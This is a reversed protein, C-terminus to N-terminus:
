LNQRRLPLAPFRPREHLGNGSDVTLLFPSFVRSGNRAGFASSTESTFQQKGGSTADRVFVDISRSAFPDMARHVDLRDVVVIALDLAGQAALALDGDSSRLHNM